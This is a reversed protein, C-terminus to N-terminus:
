GRDPLLKLPDVPKGYRRIEFHLKVQDSDTNGMEAIKQGKTVTQGEKVLLESNHAYVSLFTANHKVIILKGYGRLGSGSYVVRGAASAYVPQGAKGAIGVGKLNATDSFSSVVKGSTPWIWDLDDAERAAQRQEPKPEPKTEPKADTKEPPAAATKNVEAWAQDSYPVRVAKPGTKLREAASGPAPTAVPPALPKGVPTRADLPRSEVKDGPMRLPTTSITGSPATLRLQQGVRIVAVNDLNNWAALERYDLGNDLAISYLTDGQKVTYTDPRPADAARPAPKAVTAAPAAVRAQSPTRDTVPAPRRSACGAFVLSILVFLLAARAM